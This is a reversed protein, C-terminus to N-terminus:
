AKLSSVPNPTTGGGLGTGEESQGKGGLIAVGTGEWWETGRHWETNVKTGSAALNAISIAVPRGALM